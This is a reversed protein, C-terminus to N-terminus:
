IGWCQQGTNPSITWIVSVRGGSRPLCSFPLPRWSPLSPLSTRSSSPWPPRLGCDMGPECGRERVREGERQGQQPGQQPVRLQLARRSLVRRSEPLARQCRGQQLPHLVVAQSQLAAGAAARSHQPLQHRTFRAVIRQMRKKEKIEHTLLGRNRPLAQRQVHRPFYHTSGIVEAYIM